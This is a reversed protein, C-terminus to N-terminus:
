SSVLWQASGPVPQAPRVAALGARTVLERLEECHHRLLENQDRLEENQSRLVLAEHRSASLAGGVEELRAASEDALTAWHALEEQARSQLAHAFAHARAAYEAQEAREADLSAAEEALARLSADKAELAEELEDLRQLQARRTAVERPLDDLNVGPPPPLVPKQLLRRATELMEPHREVLRLAREAASASSVAYARSPAREAASAGGGGGSRGGSGGGGGGSDDADTPAATLSLVQRVFSEIAEIDLMAGSLEHHLLALKRRQYVHLREAIAAADERSEYEIAGVAQRVESIQSELVAAVAALDGKKRQLEGNLLGELSTLCHQYDAFLAASGVAEAVRPPAPPPAAPPPAPPPSPPPSSAPPPAPAPVSPAVFTPPAYGLLQPASELIRALTLPETGRGGGAASPGQQHVHLFPHQLPPPPPPPAYAALPYPPVHPYYSPYGLYPPPAGAWSNQQASSHQSPTPTPQAALPTAMSLYPYPLPPLPQSPPAPPAAAEPALERGTPKRFYNAAQQGAAMAGILAGATAGASVARMCAASSAGPAPPSESGDEEPPKKQSSMKKSTTKKTSAAEPVEDAM